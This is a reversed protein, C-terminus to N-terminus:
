DKISNETYVQDQDFNKPELKSKKYADLISQELPKGKELKVTDLNASDVIWKILDLIDVEKM